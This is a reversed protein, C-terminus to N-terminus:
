ACALWDLTSIFTAILPLFLSFGLWAFSYITASLFSVLREPFDVLRLEVLPLL